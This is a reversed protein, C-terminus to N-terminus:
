MQLQQLEVRFNRNMAYGTEWQLDATMEKVFGVTMLVFLEIGAAKALDAQEDIKEMTVDYYMSEWSNLLVPRTKEEFRKPILHQQYLWHFNHRMGNLGTNSYNM